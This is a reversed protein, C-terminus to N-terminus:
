QEVINCEKSDFKMQLSERIIHTKATQMALFNFLVLFAIFTWAKHM